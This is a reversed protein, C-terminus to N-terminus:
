KSFSAEFEKLENLSEKDLEQQSAAPLVPDNTPSLVHLGNDEPNIPAPVVPLYNFGAGGNISAARSSVQPFDPGKEPIVPPVPANFLKYGILPTITLGIVISAVTFGTIELTKKAKPRM